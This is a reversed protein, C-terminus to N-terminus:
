RKKGGKMKGGKMKHGGLQEKPAVAEKASDVANNLSEGVSETAAKTNDVISDTVDGFAKSTSEAADKAGETVTEITNEVMDKTSEFADSASLSDTSGMLPIFPQDSVSSFVILPILFTLLM